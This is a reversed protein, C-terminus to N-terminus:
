ANKYRMKDIRRALFGDENEVLDDYDVAEVLNQVLSAADGDPMAADIEFPAGFAEM